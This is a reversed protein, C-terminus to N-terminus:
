TLASAWLCHKPPKMLRQKMLSGATSIPELNTLAGKRSYDSPHFQSPSVALVNNDQPACRLKNALVNNDQPTCRLKNALIMSGQRFLLQPLTKAVGISVSSEDGIKM